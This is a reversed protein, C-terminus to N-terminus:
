NNNHVVVVNVIFVFANIYLKYIIAITNLYSVHMVFFGSSDRTARVNSAPTPCCLARDRRVRSITACTLKFHLHEM